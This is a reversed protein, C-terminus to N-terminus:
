FSSVTNCDMQLSIDDSTEWLLDLTQNNPLIDLTLSRLAPDLNAELGQRADSFCMCTHLSVNFFMGEGVDM